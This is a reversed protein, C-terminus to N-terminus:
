SSESELEPTSHTPSLSNDDARETGDLEHVPSVARRKNVRPPPTSMEAM